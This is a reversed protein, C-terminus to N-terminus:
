GNQSAERDLLARKREVGWAYGSVAGDNRVVRHCPIAVALNNAACAGAVARVSRPSGIRRAIEAYSVREGIPIEQLVQWVRRQFATGRVDLPLDLGIHPNEVFGVVRSILAEYERDAGVLRAKPFRDQLNRVLKDPDDGLLISAVGKTSSAVLIAGLSTQGVAFKIEENAGGARYQTPTMGLMGTSKEYFRGSSNFGADYIAETVSNGTELGERVKKARDAAAYDKPTLGAVAKFMRHFYGPSRGVAEALDQWRRNRRVRRSSEVPRPSSRPMKAKWRVVMLIAGSALVSGPRRRAKWRTTSHLTKPTPPARRALRGVISERPRFAIGFIAM